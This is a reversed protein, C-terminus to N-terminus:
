KEVEKFEGSFPRGVEKFITEPKSLALEYGSGEGESFFDRFEKSSLGLIESARKKTYAAIVVKGRIKGNMQGNFVKLKKM